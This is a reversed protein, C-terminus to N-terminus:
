KGLQASRAADRDRCALVDVRKQIELAQQSRIGYVKDLWAHGFHATDAFQTLDKRERGHVLIATM